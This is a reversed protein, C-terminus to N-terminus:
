IDKSNWQIKPKKLLRLNRNIPKRNLSAKYSCRNKSWRLLETYTMNVSRKYKLYTRELNM